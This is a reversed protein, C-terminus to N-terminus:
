VKLLLLMVILVAPVTVTDSGNKSALETLAGVAGSLVAALICYGVSNGSLLILM